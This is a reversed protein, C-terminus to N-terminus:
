AASSRAGERSALSSTAKRKQRKQRGVFGPVPLGEHLALQKIIWPGLDLGEKEAQADYIAYQDAPLRVPIAKREGYSRDFESM